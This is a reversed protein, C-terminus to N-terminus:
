AIGQVFGGAGVLSAMLALMLPATLQAPMGFANPRLHEIWFMALWPIAYVISSSFNVGFEVIATGVGHPESRRVSAAAAAPMQRLRDYVVGALERVDDFGLEQQIRRDSYGASEILAM